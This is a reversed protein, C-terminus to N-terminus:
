LDNIVFIVSAKLYFFDLKIKYILGTKDKAITQIGKLECNWFM